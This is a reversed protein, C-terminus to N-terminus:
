IPSHFMIKSLRFTKEHLPLFYYKDSSNHEIIIEHNAEENFIIELFSNEALKLIAQVFYGCFQALRLCGYFKM